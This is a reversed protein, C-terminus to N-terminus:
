RGNTTLFFFFLLFPDFFPRRPADMHCAFLSLARPLILRRRDVDLRRSAASRAASVVWRRRVLHCVEVEEVTEKKKKKKKQRFALFFVVNGM